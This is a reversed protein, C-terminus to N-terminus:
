PPLSSFFCSEAHDIILILLKSPLTVILNKNVKKWSNKVLVVQTVACEFRSNGVQFISTLINVELYKNNQIHM